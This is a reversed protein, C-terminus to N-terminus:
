LLSFFSLLKFCGGGGVWVRSEELKEHVWNLRFQNQKEPRFFEEM